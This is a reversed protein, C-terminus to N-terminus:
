YTITSGSRSASAGSPTAAGGSRPLRSGIPGAEEEFAARAEQYERLKRRYEAIAQPSAAQAMAETAANPMAGPQGALTQPATLLLAFALYGTSARIAPPRM